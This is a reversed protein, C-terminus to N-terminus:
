KNLFYFFISAFILPVIPMVVKQFPFYARGGNKKKLYEYYEAGSFFLICGIAIGLLMKDIGWMKNLEKGVIPYGKIKIFFLPVIIMLFYVIITVAKMQFFKINKRSFWDLTWSILSVTLGGVWLGIIVDDVGFEEALGVGAGVAITCIPCVALAKPAVCFVGTLIFSTLTIIIRRM